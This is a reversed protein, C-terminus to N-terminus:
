QVNIDVFIAQKIEGDKLLTEYKHKILSGYSEDSMHTFDDCYLDELYDIIEDEGIIFCDNPVYYYDINSNGFSGAWWSFDDSVCIEYDVKPIIDLNPNEESLKMLKKINDNM